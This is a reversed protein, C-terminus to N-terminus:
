LKRVQRLRAARRQDAPLLSQRQIYFFENHDAPRPNQDFFQANAFEDQDLAGPPNIPPAVDARANSPFGLFAILFLIFTFRKM